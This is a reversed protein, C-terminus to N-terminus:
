RSRSPTLELKRGLQKKRSLSVIELNGPIHLGCVKPHTIPITHHVVFGTGPYRRNLMACKEYIARIADRDTWVPTARKLAARKRADREFWIEDPDVLMEEITPTRYGRHYANHRERNANRWRTTRPTSTNKRM